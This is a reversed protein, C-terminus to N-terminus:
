VFQQVGLDDPFGAEFAIHLTVSSVEMLRQSGHVCACVFM